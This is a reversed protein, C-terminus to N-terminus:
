AHCVLKNRRFFLVRTCDVYWASAHAKRTDDDQQVHFMREEETLKEIRSTKDDDTIEGVVPCYTLVPM